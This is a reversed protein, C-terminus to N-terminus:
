PCILNCPKGPCCHACASGNICCKLPCIAAEARALAVTQAGALAAFALLLFVLKKRMM